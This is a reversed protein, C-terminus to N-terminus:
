RPPRLRSSTASAPRTTASLYLRCNRSACRGDFGLSRRAVSTSSLHEQEYSLSHDIFYFRFPYYSTKLFDLYFSGGTDSDRNGLADTHGTGRHIAPEFTLTIFRPDLIYTKLSFDVGWSLATSETAAAPNSYVRTETTSHTTGFDFVGNLSLKPEGEQAAIFGPALVLTVAALALRM